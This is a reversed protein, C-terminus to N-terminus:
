WARIHPYVCQQKFKHVNYVSAHQQQQQTTAGHTYLAVFGMLFQTGVYTVHTVTHTFLIWIIQAYKLRSASTIHKDNGNSKSNLTNRWRVDTHSEKDM